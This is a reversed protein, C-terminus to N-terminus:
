LALGSAPTSRFRLESRDTFRFLIPLVHIVSLEAGLRTAIDTAASFAQLSGESFDTPCLIREVKYM